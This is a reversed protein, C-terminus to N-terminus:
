IHASLHTCTNRHVQFRRYKGITDMALIVQTYVKNQVYASEGTEENVQLSCGNEHDVSQYELPISTYAGLKPIGFFKIRQDRMVNEIHIPSPKPIIKPPPEQGEELEVEEEEPMEPLKFTDFSLGQRVPPEEADEPQKIVKNGVVHEQGPNSSVYNLSETEGNVRKIAVYAAPVNLYEALFATTRDMIEQKNKSMASVSGLFSTLQQAHEDRKAQAAAEVSEKLMEANRADQAAADIDAFRKEV